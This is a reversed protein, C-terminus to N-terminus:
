RNVETTRDPNYEEAEKAKETLWRRALELMGVGRGESLRHFTAYTEWSVRVLLVPGRPDADKQDTSPAHQAM